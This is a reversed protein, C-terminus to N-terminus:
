LFSVFCNQEHEKVKAVESSVWGAVLGITFDKKYEPLADDAEVVRNVFWQLYRAADQLMAATSILKELDKLQAILEEKEKAETETVDDLRIHEKNIKTTLINKYTTLWSADSKGPENDHLLEPQVIKKINTIVKQAEELDDLHDAIM